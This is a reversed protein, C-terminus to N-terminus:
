KVGNCDREMTSVTINFALMMRTLWIEFENLMSQYLFNLQGGCSISNNMDSLSFALGAYMGLNTANMHNKSKRDSQYVNPRKARSMGTNVSENM